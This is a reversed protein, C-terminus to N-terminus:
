RQRPHLHKTKRLERNALAFACYAQLTSPSSVVLDECPGAAVSYLLHAAMTPIAARRRGLEKWRGLFHLEGAWYRARRVQIWDRGCAGDAM